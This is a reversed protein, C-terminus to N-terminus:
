FTSWATPFEDRGICSNFFAWSPGTCPFSLDQVLRFDSADNNEVTSPPATRFPGILAAVDSPLYAASLRGARQEDAIYRNIFEPHSTVSAQNPGIITQAM